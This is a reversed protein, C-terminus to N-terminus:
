EGPWGRGSELEGAPPGPEGSAVAVVDVVSEVVVVVDCVEVSVVFEDVVDGVVCSVVVVVVVVVVSEEVLVVDLEVVVVGVLEVVCDVVVSGVVVVVVDDGGGLVAGEALRAAFGCDPAGGSLTVNEREAESASPSAKDHHNSASFSVCRSADPTPSGVGFTPWV